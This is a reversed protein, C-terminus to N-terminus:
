TIPCKTITNDINKKFFALMSDLFPSHLHFSEELSTLECSGTKLLKDVVISTMESQYPVDFNIEEQKNGKLDFVQLVRSSESIKIIVTDTEITITVSQVPIEDNFLHCTLYFSSDDTSGSLTGYVEKYGVRKSPLVNSQLMSLDIEYSTQDTLFAWMDIFHISNCALGWEGGEVQLTLFSSGSVRERLSRYVPYMRRPCNVWASIQSDSLLQRAEYLEETSQFLVKELILYEIRFRKTIEKIVSLRHAASTAVICVDINTPINDYAVRFIVKVPSGAKSVEMYRSEAVELSEVSPDVIFIEDQKDLIALSQLHRSGLQGAGVILIKAM